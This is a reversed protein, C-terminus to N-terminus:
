FKSIRVRNEYTSQFKRLFKNEKSMYKVKFKLWNNFQGCVFGKDSKLSNTRRIDAVIATEYTSIESNILMFRGFNSTRPIRM